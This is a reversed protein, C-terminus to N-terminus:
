GHITPRSVSYWCCRAAQQSRRGSRRNLSLNWQPKFIPKEKKVRQPLTLVRKSAGNPCRRTFSKECDNRDQAMQGSLYKLTVRALDAQNQQAAQQSPVDMCGSAVIAALPPTVMLYWGVIALAAAHRLNM